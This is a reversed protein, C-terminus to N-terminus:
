HHAAYAAFTMAAGSHAALRATPPLTSVKREKDRREFEQFLKRQLEVQEYPHCACPTTLLQLILLWGHWSGNLPKCKAATAM